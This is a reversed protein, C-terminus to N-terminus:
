AIPEVTIQHSEIQIIRIRQGSAVYGGLTKVEYTKGDVEAKGVPRLASLTVGEQGPTLATMAGENVKSDISSKLAFRGWVDAKFSYYFVVGGVVGVTGTTIWGTEPGFYHFSLGVGAILFALGLAGVITTGPVFIIEAIVLALGIIVLSIVVLWAM